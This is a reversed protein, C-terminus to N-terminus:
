ELKVPMKETGWFTVPSKSLCKERGPIMETVKGVKLYNNLNLKIERLFFKQVDCLGKTIYELLVVHWNKMASIM